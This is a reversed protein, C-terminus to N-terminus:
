NKRRSKKRHTIPLLRLVMVAIDMFPFVSHVATYMEEASRVKTVNLGPLDFQQNGPRFDPSGGGGKVEPEAAIEIGMKGSSHNGIFRVPDMAEYTPGATYWFKKGALEGSRFYLKIHDSFETPEAM